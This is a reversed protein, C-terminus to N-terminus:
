GVSLSLGRPGIKLYFNGQLIILQGYLVYFGARCPFYNLIDSYNKNPKM